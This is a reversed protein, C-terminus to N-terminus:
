EHRSIYKLDIQEAKEDDLLITKIENQDMNLEFYESIFEWFDNDIKGDKIEGIPESVIELVWHLNYQKSWNALCDVVYSLDRAGMFCDDDYDVDVNGDPGSYGGLLSFKFGGYLTGTKVEGISKTVEDLFPSECWWCRNKIIETAEGLVQQRVSDPVKQKTSYDFAVGM